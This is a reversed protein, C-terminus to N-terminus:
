WFCCHYIAAKKNEEFSSYEFYVQFVWICGYCVELEGGGLVLVDYSCKLLCSNLFLVFMKFWDYEMVPIQNLGWIQIYKFFFHPASLAQWLFVGLIELLTLDFGLCLSTIVNGVKYMSLWLSDIFSLSLHVEKTGLSCSPLRCCGSATCWRLVTETLITGSTGRWGLPSNFAFRM